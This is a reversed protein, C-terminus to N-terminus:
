PTLVEVSGVAGTASVGQVHPNNLRTLKLFGDVEFVTGTELGVDNGSPVNTLVIFTNRGEGPNQNQATFVSFARVLQSFYQQSYQNPPEAFYPINSFRSM